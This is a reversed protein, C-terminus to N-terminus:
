HVHNLLSDESLSRVWDEEEFEDEAAAAEPGRGRGLARSGTELHLPLRHRVQFTAIEGSPDHPRIAKGSPNRFGLAQFFYQYKPIFELGQEAEPIKWRNETDGDPNRAWQWIPKTGDSEIVINDVLVNKDTLDDNFDTRWIPIAGGKLRRTQFIKSASHSFRKRKTIDSIPEGRKKALLDAHFFASHFIARSRPHHTNLNWFLASFDPLTSGSYSKDDASIVGVNPAVSLVFGLSSSTFSGHHGFFLVDSKIVDVAGGTEKKIEAAVHLMHKEGRKAWDRRDPPAIYELFPQSAMIFGALIHALYPEVYYVREALQVLNTITWVKEKWNPLFRGFEEDWVIRPAKGKVWGSFRGKLVARKQRNSKLSEHLAFLRRRWDPHILKREEETRRDWYVAREPIQGPSFFVVPPVSAAGAAPKIEFGEPNFRDYTVFSYFALRRLGESSLIYPDAFPLIPLQEDKPRDWGLHMMMDEETYKDAGEGSGFVDALSYRATPKKDRGETDGPVFVSAKGYTAQISVSGDNLDPEKYYPWAAKYAAKDHNHPDFAAITDAHVVTFGSNRRPDFDFRTGVPIVEVELTKGHLEPALSKMGKESEGMFHFLDWEIAQSVQGPGFPYRVKGQGYRCDIKGKMFAPLNQECLAYEDYPKGDRPQDFGNPYPTGVVYYHADKGAQKAAYIEEIAASKFRKLYKISPIQKSEIINRVDFSEFLPKAGNFHDEHPHSLIFYDIIDGDFDGQAHKLGIKPSTLFSVLDNDLGESAGKGTDYVVRFPRDEPNKPPFEMYVALGTGIDVTYTRFKSKDSRKAWAGGLTLTTAFALGVAWRLYRSM